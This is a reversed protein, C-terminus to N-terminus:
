GVVKLSARNDDSLTGARDTESGGAVAPPENDGYPYLKKDEKRIHKQESLRAIMNYLSTKSPPHDGEHAAWIADIVDSSSCGPNESIYRVALVAAPSGFESVDAVDDVEGKELKSMYDRYQAPTFLHDGRKKLLGRRLLKQIGNYYGSESSKLRDGFPGSRMKALLERQMVGGNSSRVQEEIVGTWTARGKRTKVLGPSESKRATGDGLFLSPALLRVADIKERLSAQRKRLNEIKLDIESCEAEWSRVEAGSISFGSDHPSQSM